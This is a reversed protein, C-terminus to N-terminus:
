CIELRNDRAPRWFFNLLLFVLILSLLAEVLFLSSFLIKGRLIVVAFGLLAAFGPRQFPVATRLLYVLLGIAVFIASTAGLQTSQVFDFVLGSLFLQLMVKNSVGASLILVLLLGEFFVPPLFPGQLLAFLLSLLLVTRIRM